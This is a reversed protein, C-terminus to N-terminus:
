FSVGFVLNVDNMAPNLSFGVFVPLAYRDTIPIERSATLAINCVQFGKNDTPLYTISEWPAAGVAVEFDVSKFSFPYSIEIYTSYARDGDKDKDGGAFMTSWSVSLPFKEGFTYGVTGEFHHGDKYDGYKAGQGDWWYDTVGISFGATEYGLSLDFEKFDRVDTSGWAGFSLGKYAIGLEPQISIGTQYVGRWVYSSVLDAGATIEAKDQASVSSGVLVAATALITTVVRKM